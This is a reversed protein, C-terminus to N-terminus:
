VVSCEVSHCHFVTKLDIADIVYNIRISVHVMKFVIHLICLLEKLMLCCQSKRCHVVLYRQQFDKITECAKVYKKYLEDMEARLKAELQVYQDRNEKLLTQFVIMLSIYLM